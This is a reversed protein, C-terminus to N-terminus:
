ERPVTENRRSFISNIVKKVFAALAALGVVVLKWGKKLFVLLGAFLGLKAAGVAAGGVVLAALGYKAVKDGQRYEAYTGGTQFAYGTLLERFTPLTAPLADPEVILVVEMVGKRGLLRTNYNLIPQDGSTARIAWELNHTTADYKPPVEWGVIELPPNGAAVRDKNAEATGRKISALLKDADLKDKDDDKVYGIDSFEFLVSWHANTPRLFGLEHGSTPEGSAKMIARTSKGDLFAYGAPVDIQAISELQAKAPGHLVNLKPKAAPSEGGLAAGALTLGCVTSVLLKFYSM